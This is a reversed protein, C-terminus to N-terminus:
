NKAPPTTDRLGVAVQGAHPFVDETLKRLQGALELSYGVLRAARPPGYAWIALYVIGSTLHFLLFEFGLRLEEAPKVDPNSRASKIHARTFQNVQGRVARLWDLALGTRERRFERALQRSTESAVFDSDEPDFIRASLESTLSDWGPSLPTEQDAGDREHNFDGRRVRMSLLWCLILTTAAGLLFYALASM